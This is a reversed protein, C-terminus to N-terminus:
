KEAGRGWMGCFYDHLNTAHAQVFREWQRGGAREFFSMTRAGCDGHLQCDDRKDGPLWTPVLRPKEISVRFVASPCEELSSSM